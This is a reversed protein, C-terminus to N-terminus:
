VETVIDEHSSCHPLQCYANGTSSKFVESSLSQGVLDYQLLSISEPPCDVSAILGKRWTFMIESSTYADPFAFAILFLFVGVDCVGTFRSVDTISVAELGWLVPTDTWPSTWWDWRVSPASQWDSLLVCAWSIETDAFSRTLAAFVACHSIVEHHLARDWEAHHPLTQEAHDHQSLYVEKLKPLVHRADLDKGGNQQEAASNWHPGRVEAAWWGVDSPLVHGHHVGSARVCRTLPHLVKYEIFFVVRFKLDRDLGQCEDALAKEVRLPLHSSFSSAM